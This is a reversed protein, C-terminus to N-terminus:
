GPKSARYDADFEGISKTTNFSFNDVTVSQHGSVINSAQSYIDEAKTKLENFLKEKAQAGMGSMSSFVDESYGKAELLYRFINAKAKKAGEESFFNKTNTAVVDWLNNKDKLQLGHTIISDKVEQSANLGQELSKKLAALDMDSFNNREQFLSQVEPLQNIESFSLGEKEKQAFLDDIKQNYINYAEEATKGRMSNQGAPGAPPPPLNPGTVAPLKTNKGGSVDQITMGPKVRSLKQYGGTAEMAAHPATMLLMPLASDIMTQVSQKSVKWLAEAVPVGQVKDDVWKGIETTMGSIFEQMGEEGVETAWNKGYKKVMSAVSRKTVGAIEQQALKNLGPIMKDVQSFEIAAYPVGAISGLMKSTNHDIGEDRMVGYMSGAGQRYWYQTGGLLEGAKYATPVTVLEEPLGVQPGLQGAVAALAGAGLGLAKGQLNGTLMAPAMGAVTSVTKTGLNRSVIPDYTNKKQLTEKQKKVAEYAKPDNSMMADYTGTDIAAGKKGRTYSETINGWIGRNRTDSYDQAAAGQTAIRKQLDTQNLGFFDEAAKPLVAKAVSTWLSDGPKKRTSKDASITSEPLGFENKAPSAPAVVKKSTAVAAPATSSSKGTIALTVDFPNAKNSPLAIKPKEAEAGIPTYRGSSAVPTYRTSM